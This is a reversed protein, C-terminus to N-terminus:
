LVFIQLYSMNGCYLCRYIVFGDTCKYFARVARKKDFKIRCKAKHNGKPKNVNSDFLDDWCLRYPNASLDNGFVSTSTGLLKKNEAKVLKIKSADYKVDFSIAIIGPNNSIEIEVDVTEGAEGTVDAITISPMQM